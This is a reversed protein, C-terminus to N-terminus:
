SVLLILFFLIILLLPVSTAIAAARGRKRALFVWAAISAGLAFLPYSWIAGVLLWPQWNSTSGPADFAMVALGAMAVWPLLSLAYGFQSM